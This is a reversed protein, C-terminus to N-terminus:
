TEPESETDKNRKRREQMRQFAWKYPDGEFSLEFGQQDLDHLANENELDIVEAMVRTVLEEILRGRLTVFINGEKTSFM